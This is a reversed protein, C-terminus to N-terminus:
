VDFDDFPRYAFRKAQPNNMGRDLWPRAHLMWAASSISTTGVKTKKTVVVGAGAAAGMHHAKSVVLHAALGVPPHKEEGALVLDPPNVQIARISVEDWGQRWRVGENWTM